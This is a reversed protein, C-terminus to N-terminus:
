LSIKVKSMGHSLCHALLDSLFMNWQWKEDPAQMSSKEALEWPITRDSCWEVVEAMKADHYIRVKIQIEPLWEPRIGEAVISLLHTYRTVEDVRISMGSKLDQTFDVGISQGLKPPGPMLRLLRVYNLECEGHLRQLNHRQRRRESVSL